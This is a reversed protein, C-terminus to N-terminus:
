VRYLINRIYSLYLFCLGKFLQANMKLINNWETINM